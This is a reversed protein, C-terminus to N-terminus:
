RYGNIGGLDLDYAFCCMHQIITLRVWMHAILINVDLTHQILIFNTIKHIGM